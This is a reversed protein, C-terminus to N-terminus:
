RSRPRHSAAFGKTKCDRDQAQAAESGAARGEQRRPRIGRGKEAASATTTASPSAVFDPAFARILGIVLAVHILAVLIMVLYRTRKPVSLDAGNL